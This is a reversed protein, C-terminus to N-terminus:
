TNVAAGSEGAVGSTVPLRVRLETGHGPPSDIDLTGGVAQVRERIGELGNGRKAIGGRGNDGITLLTHARDGDMAIRIEARTAGAHRHINTTAERVTMGLVSEAEASLGPTDQQCTVTVGSCELLVRASALEGELATARIGSVAMRVQKLADRAVSMVEAIERAAGERNRELLKGALESKIAILSLTHGLLDHLDRGIREREAVAALRRIEEQSVRLIADKRQKEAVYSNGVSCATL